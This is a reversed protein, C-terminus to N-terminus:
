TTYVTDACSFGYLALTCWRLSGLLFPKATRSKEWRERACRRMWHWHYRARPRIAMNRWIRLLRTHRPCQFPSMCWVCNTEQVTDGSFFYCCRTVVNVVFSAFYLKSDGSVGMMILTTCSAYRLQMGVVGTHTLWLEVAMMGLVMPLFRRRFSWALKSNLSPPFQNVVQQLLTAPCIYCVCSRHAGKGYSAGAKVRRDGHHSYEGERSTVDFVYKFLFLSLCFVCCTGGCGFLSLPKLTM